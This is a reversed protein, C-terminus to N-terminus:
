QSLIVIALCCSCVCVLKQTDMVHQQLKRRASEIEAQQRRGEASLVADSTIVGSSKSKNSPTLVSPESTTTKQIIEGCDSIRVKACPTGSKTGYSELTKLVKMGAKIKGFVVHKNDLWPTVATTIFFQSSQTNPGANAM